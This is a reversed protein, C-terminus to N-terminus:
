FLKKTCTQKDEFESTFKGKCDRKRNNHHVSQHESRTTLVLNEPRNDLKNGNIHHVIENETLPRGLKEEMVKRHVFYRGETTSVCKYGDYLYERPKRDGGRRNAIGLVCAKHLISSQTRNLYEACKVLGLTEYNQKLWELDVSSWVRNAM